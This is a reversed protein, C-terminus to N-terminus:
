PERLLGPGPENQEVDLHGPEVADLNCPADAGVLASAPVKMTSSVLRESALSTAAPM